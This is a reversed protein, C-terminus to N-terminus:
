TTCGDNRELELVNGDDVWGGFFGMYGDATLGLEAGRGEAGTAVM